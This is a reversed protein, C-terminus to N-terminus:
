MNNWMVQHESTQDLWARFHKESSFVERVKSCPWQCRAIVIGEGCRKVLVAETGMEEPNMGCVDCDEKYDRLIRQRPQNFKRRPARPMTRTSAGFTVNLEFPNSM